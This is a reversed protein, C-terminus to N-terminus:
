KVTTVACTAQSAVKHSVSGLFFGKFDSLGRTGLVILDAKQRKATELIADAPEGAIVFAATRPVGSAIAIQRASELIQEGIAKLLEPPAPITIAVPDLGGSSMAAVMEVEYTDLLKRMEKTLQRRNTVSRLTESSADRLPSHVVVLRGKALGAIEAALSLAKKAHNSGDTAVLVTKIM